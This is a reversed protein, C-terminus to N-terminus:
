LRENDNRTTGFYEMTMDMFRALTPSLWKDKHRLVQITIPFDPGVWNLTKLLGENLQTAVSMQPLLTIGLGAIACQKITEISFFELNTCSKVNAAHLAQELMIRYSCGAETTLLTENLFDSPAVRAQQTLRHEPHVVLMMQIQEITTEILPGVPDTETPSEMTFAIDLVGEQLMRRLDPCIGTRFVIQVSPYRERFMKLLPPLRYTCLSEPAGITLIGTPETEGPVYAYAEDALRLMNDAYPLLRQGAETLLIRKGLREFLPTAFHQELAQIQATVSSQAYNLREAARTFSLEKAVAQFTQLQKLEM